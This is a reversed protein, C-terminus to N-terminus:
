ALLLTKVGSIALIHAIGNKRYLNKIESDMSTKDGLLMASLVGANEESMYARFKSAISQKINVMKEAAADYAKGQALVVTDWLRLSIGLGAYYAHADFQGDNEAAEFPLVEGEVWLWRGVPVDEASADTMYCIVKAGDAPEYTYETEKEKNSNQDSKQDSNQKIQIEKLYYIQRNNKTEKKYLQGTLSVHAGEAFEAAEERPPSIFIQVFFGAIVYFVVALCLPRRLLKQLIVQM